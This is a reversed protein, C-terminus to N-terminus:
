EVDKGEISKFYDDYIKDEKEKEIQYHGKRKLPINEYIFDCLLIRCMPCIHYDIGEEIQTFEIQLTKIPYGIKKSVITTDQEVYYLKGCRDCEIRM